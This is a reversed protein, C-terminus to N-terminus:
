DAEGGFAVYAQHAADAMQHQLDRDVIRVSRPEGRYNEARPLQALYIGRTGRSAKILLCGFFAFGRAECDFHALLRDGNKWPEARAMNLGTIKIPLPDTM